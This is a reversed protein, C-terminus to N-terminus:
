RDVADDDAIVAGCIRFRGCTRAGDSAGVQDYVGDSRVAGTHDFASSVAKAEQSQCEPCVEAGKGGCQSGSADCGSPASSIGGKNVRVSPSPGCVDAVADGASTASTMGTKSELVLKSFKAPVPFRVSGGAVSADMEVDGCSAPAVATGRRGSITDCVESIMANALPSLPANPDYCSSCMSSLGSPLLSSVWSVPPLGM